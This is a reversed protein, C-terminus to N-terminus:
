ILKRCQRTRGASRGAVLISQNLDNYNKGELKNCSKAVKGQLSGNEDGLDNSHLYPSTEMDSYLNCSNCLSNPFNGFTGFNGFWTNKNGLNVSSSYTDNRLDLFPSPNYYGQRVVAFKEKIDIKDFIFIIIFILLICFIQFDM